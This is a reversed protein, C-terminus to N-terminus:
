LRNPESQTMEGALVGRQSPASRAAIRPMALPRRCRGTLREPQRFSGIQASYARPLEIHAIHGRAAGFVRLREIPADGDFKLQKGKGARSVVLGAAAM